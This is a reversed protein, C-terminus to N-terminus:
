GTNNQQGSGQLKEIKKGYQAVAMFRTILIRSNRVNLTTKETEQL